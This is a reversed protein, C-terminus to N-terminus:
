LTHVAPLADRRTALQRSDLAGHAVHDNRTLEFPRLAVSATMTEGPMLWVLGTSADDKRNVADTSHSVPEVCVHDAGGPTYVVTHGLNASPNITLGLARDPWRLTIPGKRQTYVTDVNRTAVPRGHWWDIAHEREDLMLPLCDPTNHWEGRHLAHYTTAANCPFYPHIGLGAPMASDGLNRLTLTITMEEEGLDFRQTANFSWPWEGAEYTYSLVAYGRGIAEVGWVGLWGFGHITHTDEAGPFNSALAVEKGDAMFRGHAIRNSFPVLPYSAVDWISTGAARRTVPKGLWDLVLISGGM